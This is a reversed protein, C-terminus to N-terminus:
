RTNLFRHIIDMLKKLIRERLTLEPKTQLAADMAFLSEIQKGRRMQLSSIERLVYGRMEQNGCQQFLASSQQYYDLAADLRGLEVLAAAINGLAMAQKETMLREAFVLDTGMAQEYAAQAQGSKLYAVSLNNRVEVVELPFERPDLSSLIQHFIQAAESFKKDEFAAKARAALKSNTEALSM